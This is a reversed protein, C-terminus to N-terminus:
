KSEGLMSNHVIKTRKWPIKFQSNNVCVSHDFQNLHDNCVTKNGCVVRERTFFEM